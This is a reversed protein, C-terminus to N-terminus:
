HEAAELAASLSRVPREVLPQLDFRKEIMRVISTTDFDEHAVGSQEFRKSVLLAPVRTGPGWQDAALKDRGYRNFPPPPVHDWAGGFEDYTVIILTDRGNPGEMVAKILDVLHNSGETENTYGPHENEEGLPKVFSVPRLLGTRAADVVAEGGPIRSGLQVAIAPAERAQRAVEEPLGTLHSDISHRYGTNFASGLVAV